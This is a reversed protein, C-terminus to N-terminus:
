QNEKGAQDQCERALRRLEDRTASMAPSAAMPSDALRTYEGAAFRLVDKGVRRGDERSAIRDVAAKQTPLDPAEKWAVKEPVNVGLSQWWPRAPIEVTEYGPRYLLVKVSRTREGNAIPFVLYYYAFYADRQPGVAGDEVPIAKIENSVWIPGTMVPGSMTYESTERFARVDSEPVAVTSTKSIDPYGFGVCGAILPCALIAPWIRM